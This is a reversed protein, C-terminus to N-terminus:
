GGALDIKPLLNPDTVFRQFSKKDVAHLYADDPDVQKTQVADLLAQDMLQMGRSRGTQIQNPIQFTKDSMLLNAIAPTSFMIEVIAKRGRGDFTRVLTQTVVARLSQSLFAKGQVRQEAPLADLMRDISKVASTTHLTGLVLHGTEAALMAMGITEPDRMEGVLIIDPDERLASRLGDSFTRVHTGLERQIVQSRKSHHIFEVPDELTIINSQRTTNLDDIIAALTTSKGTGTSGTILVLGHNYGTVTRVADPLGLAAIGPIESPIYRLVAGIGSSKRFLNVRFRGAGESMYSFDLDSGSNFRSQQSSTLIETMYGELEADGLDRFKIPLLEGHLRLMPPVGVALHVDSCGQELGLKLFADIRPM